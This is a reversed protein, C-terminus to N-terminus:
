FDKIIHTQPTTTKSPYNKAFGEQPSGLSRPPRPTVKTQFLSVSARHLRELLVGFDQQDGHAAPTGLGGRAPDPLNGAPSNGSRLLWRKKQKPFPSENSGNTQTGCGYLSICSSDLEQGSNDSNQIKKPDASKKFTRSAPDTGAGEGGGGLLVWVAEFPAM